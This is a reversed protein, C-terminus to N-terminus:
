PRVVAPQPVRPIDTLLQHSNCSHIVSQVCHVIRVDLVQEFNCVFSEVEQNERLQINRSEALTVCGWPDLTRVAHTAGSTHMVPTTVPILHRAAKGTPNSKREM